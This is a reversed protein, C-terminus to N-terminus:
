LFSFFSSAPLIKQDWLKLRWSLLFIISNRVGVEERLQGLPRSLNQISKEM